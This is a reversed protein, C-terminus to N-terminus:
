IIKDIILVLWHYGVFALVGVTLGAASSIMKQYLGGTISETDISGAMAIDYFITIVGLITGIFGLMPAVRGIISLITLNRELKYIELKGTNEVAADITRLSKGIRSLGKDIMRALPTETNRCLAKAAQINGSLVYDRINNMFNHDIRAARRITFYREFFVYLSVILLIGLPIMIIGGKVLLDLLSTFAPGDPTNSVSDSIQLLILAM